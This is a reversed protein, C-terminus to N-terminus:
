FPVDENRRQRPGPRRSTLLPGYRLLRGTLAIRLKADTDAPAAKSEALSTLLQVLSVFDDLDIQEPAIRGGRGRNHYNGLPICVAATTYGWAAYVTSECTGGPMLHRGFRFGRHHRSMAKAVADVHATLSPDFTRTRDGVRVVVGSGLPAEPQAASAEIAVLLATHPLTRDRCAALAGVFGSEEARTLLGTVDAAVGRRSLDDLACLVSAVGALDDCARASVHRGRVRMAPIDWMGVTGPPIDAPRDLTLRVSLGTGDPSKRVAEVTGAIEGGPAFFRARSGPFYRKEVSGLFRAWLTRGRRRAAVFGPHDMHAAFVWRLPRRGRAAAKRYRLVVNGGKDQRFTLGRADAFRRVVEVVAEECFPATPLSLIDRLIELHNDHM